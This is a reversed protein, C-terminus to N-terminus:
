ELATKILNKLDTKLKEDKLQGKEDFALHAKPITFQTNLVEGGINQIIDKLHTLGKAGGSVSPSASMLVFKKGKFAERSAGNEESRTAWDITNKLVGSVSGNYDPSAIFIVQSKIMLQRLLKANEPIGEQEDLDGDYFPIPYDRLDIVTVHAGMEEALFAAEAILKKNLSEERTSGAFALINVESQLNSFSTIIILILANFWNLM